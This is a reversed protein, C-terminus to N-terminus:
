PDQAEAIKREALARWAEAGQAVFMEFSADGALWGSVTRKQDPDTLRALTLKRAWLLLDVFEGHKNTYQKELTQRVRSAFAPSAGQTSVAIQLLGKRVVAPVHYDCLEPQDVVNCLIQRNQCDKYIQENLAQDDTAAVVLVSQGLYDAMYPGLILEAAPEVCLAELEACATKAVVVLRCQTEILAQAKRLAVKGGGVILVRKEKLEIFIPYKSMIIM